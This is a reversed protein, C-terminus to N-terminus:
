YLYGALATIYEADFVPEGLLVVARKVVELLVLLFQELLVGLYLIALEFFDESCRVGGERGIGIRVVGRSRNRLSTVGAKM